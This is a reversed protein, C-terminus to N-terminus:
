QNVPYVSAFLVLYISWLVIQLVAFIALNFFLSFFDLIIWPQQQQDETNTTVEISRKM